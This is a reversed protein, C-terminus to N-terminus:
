EPIAAQEPIPIAPHRTDMIKLTSSAKGKVQSVKQRIARKLQHHETYLRIFRALRFLRVFRIAVLIRMVTLVNDADTQALTDKIADDNDLHEQWCDAGEAVALEVVITYAVSIVFTVLVIVFDVINFWHKRRFFVRPKLAFMRIAIELVFYVSIVLDTLSM